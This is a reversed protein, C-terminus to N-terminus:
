LSSVRILGLGDVKEVDHATVYELYSFDSHTDVEVVEPTVFAIVRTGHLKKTELVTQTRLVDVYGNAQYTAPFAQRAQNAAEVDMSGTGLCKLYRGKREFSKYATESMPHVSRLATAKNDQIITEVAADILSPDRLPTTPRLHVLYTPMDGEHTKLWDLLHVVVDYDSSTDQSIDESRLFPVEAGYARAADAYGQSDTSVIVRGVSRAEQAARISFALLPHGCLPKINKDPVGKSGSRAPVFAMVDAM